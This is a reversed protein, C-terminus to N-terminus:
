SEVCSLSQLTINSCLSSIIQWHELNPTVDSFIYDAEVTQRDSNTVYMPELTRVLWPKLHTSAEADLIM